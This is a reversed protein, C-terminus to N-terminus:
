ILFSRFFLSKRLDCPCLNSCSSRSFKFLKVYTQYSKPCTLMYATQTTSSQKTTVHVNYQHITIIYTNRCDHSTVSIGSWKSQFYSFDGLMCNSMREKGKRGWTWEKSTRLCSLPISAGVCCSPLLCLCCENKWIIGSSVLVSCATATSSLVTSAGARVQHLYPTQAARRRRVCRSLSFPHKNWFSSRQPM